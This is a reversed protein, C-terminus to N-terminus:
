WWTGEEADWVCGKGEPDFTGKQDYLYLAPKAVLDKTIDTFIESPITPYVERLAMNEIENPFDVLELAYSHALATFHQIFENRNIKGTQITWGQLIALWKNLSKIAERVCYETAMLYPHTNVIQLPFTLKLNPDSSYAPPIEDADLAMVVGDVARDVDEYGCGTVAEGLLELTLYADVWNYLGQKMVFTIGELFVDVGVLPGSRWGQIINHWKIAQDLMYVTLNIHKHLYVKDNVM